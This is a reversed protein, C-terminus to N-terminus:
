RSGAARSPPPSHDGLTGSAGLGGSLTPTHALVYECARVIREDGPDAGLQDLFILQWVTGSYKPAYGAGPKVWFGEPDQSALISRIPDSTIARSRAERVDPEDPDHGLLRVLTAARVAPDGDELLWPRPDAALQETWRMRREVVRGDSLELSTSGAGWPTWNM